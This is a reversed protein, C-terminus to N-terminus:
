RIEKFDLYHARSEEEKGDTFICQFEVRNKRVLFCILALMKKKKKLRTTSLCIGFRNWFQRTINIGQSKLERDHQYQRQGKTRGKNRKYIEVQTSRFRGFLYKVSLCRRLKQGRNEQKSLMYVEFLGSGKLATEDSIM